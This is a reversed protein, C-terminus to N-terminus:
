SGYCSEQEDIELVDYDGDKNKELSYKDYNECKDNMCQMYNDTKTLNDRCDPCCPTNRLDENMENWEKMIENKTLLKKTYLIKTM